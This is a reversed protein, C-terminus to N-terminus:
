IDVHEPQGGDEVNDKWDYGEYEEVSEYCPSCKKGKELKPSAKTVCRGLSNEVLTLRASASCAYTSSKRM